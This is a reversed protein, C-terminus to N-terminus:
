LGLQGKMAVWAAGNLRMNQTFSSAWPNAKQEHARYVFNGKGNNWNVETFVVAYDSDTQPHGSFRMIPAGNVTDVRYTGAPGLSECPAVLTNGDPTLGCRYFYAEGSTADGAGFAVRLNTYPTLTLVGMSYTSTGATTTTSLDVAAQAYAARFEDLTQARGQPVNRTYTNDITIGPVLTLSSNLSESAGSPFQVNGLAALLNGTNGGTANIRNTAPNGAWRTVLDAMAQDAVSASQSFGISARAGCFLSRNPTGVTTTFADPQCFQWGDTTLYASVYLANSAGFQPAPMGGDVRTRQDTVPKPTVAASEQVELARWYYDNSSGYNLRDLTLRDAGAASQDGVKLAVGARLAVSTFAAIWRATDEVKDDDAPPDDQYDDIKAAAIGLQVAVNARAGAESLGAAVGAQVLTTLPNIGGDSGAPRKLVYDSTTAAQEPKNADIVTAPDTPDGAKVLAILPAAAQEATATLRYRGDAGTPDSAPEGADCADNANLDLCVTANKLTANRAVTGQLTISEPTTSPGQPPDINGDSSGGGGCAALALAASVALAHRVLRANNTQM